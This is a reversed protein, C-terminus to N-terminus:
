RDEVFTTTIYLGNAINTDTSPDIYKNEFPPTPPSTTFLTPNKVERVPLPTPGSTLNIPVPTPSAVSIPGSESITPVPAPSAMPTSEPISIMSAPTLSAMPAPSSLTTPPPLVIKLNCLDGGDVGTHDGIDACDVDLGELANAMAHFVAIVDVTGQMNNDFKMNDEITSALGTDVSSILPNISSFMVHGVALKEESRDVFGNMAAFHLTGQILTIKLLGELTYSDVLLLTDCNGSKIKEVGTILLDMLYKNVISDGSGDKQCKQYDNCLENSLAFMLQGYDNGASRSGGMSGILAAVGREWHTLAYDPDSQCSDNADFLEQLSAMYMVMSQLTRTVIESIQSESAAVFPSIKSFANMIMTDAYTEDGQFYSTFLPFQSSVTSRDNSTALEKLTTETNFGYGYVIKAADLAKMTMLNRMRLIDRDLYAIQLCSFLLMFLVVPM